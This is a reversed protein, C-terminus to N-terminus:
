KSVTVIAPYFLNSKYFLYVITYKDYRIICSITKEKRRDKKQCSSHNCPLLPFPLSIFTHEKKEEKKSTHYPFGKKKMLPFDWLKITHVNKEERAHNKEKLPQNYDPSFASSGKTEQRHKDIENMWHDNYKNSSSCFNCLKFLYQNLIVQNM